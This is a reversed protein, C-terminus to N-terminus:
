RSSAKMRPFLPVYNKMKTVCGQCAIPTKPTISGDSKGDDGGFHPTDSWQLVVQDQNKIPILCTSSLSM